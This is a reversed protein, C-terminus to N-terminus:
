DNTGIRIAYSNMTLSCHVPCQSSEMVYALNERIVAGLKLSNTDDDVSSGHTQFYPNPCTLGLIDLEIFDICVGL